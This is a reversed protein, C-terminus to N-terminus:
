GFSTADIHNSPDKAYHDCLVAPAFQNKLTAYKLGLYEKVGNGERAQGLVRYLQGHHLM